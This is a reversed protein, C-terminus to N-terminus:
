RAANPDRLDRTRTGGARRTTKGQEAAKPRRRRPGAIKGPSSGRVGPQPSRGRILTSAARHSRGGEGYDAIDEPPRGGPVGRSRAEGAFDIGGSGTPRLEAQRPRQLPTARRPPSARVARS